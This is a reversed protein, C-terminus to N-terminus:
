LPMLTGPPPLVPAPPEPPPMGGPPGTDPTRPLSGPPPPMHSGRMEPPMPAGGGAGPALRADPATAQLYMASIYVIRFAMAIVNLALSFLVTGVILGWSPRSFGAGPSGVGGAVSLALHLIAFAAFTRWWGTRRVLAASQDFSQLASAGRDVITPLLYVWRVALYAILSAMAAALVLTLFVAGLIGIARYQSWLLGICVMGVIAIGVYALWELVRAVLAAGWFRFGDLADTYTMTRGRRAIRLVGSYVGAELAPTILAVVALSLAFAAASGIILVSGVDGLDLGNPAGSDLVSLLEVGVPVLTLVPIFGIVVIMFAGVLLQRWQRRALEWADNFVRGIDM